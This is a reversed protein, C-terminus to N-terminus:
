ARCSEDHVDPPRESLPVFAPVGSKQNRLFLRNGAFDRERIHLSSKTPHNIESALAAIVVPPL